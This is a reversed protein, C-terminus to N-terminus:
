RRWFFLYPSTGQSNGAINHFFTYGTMFLATGGFVFRNIPERDKFLMGLYVGEFIYFYWSVRDLFPFIYGLSSLSLGLVYSVCIMKFPVYLDASFSKARRTKTQYVFILTLFFFLIKLPIMFGINLRVLSFYKFYRSLSPLVLALAFPAAFIAFSISLKENRELENWRLLEFIMFTAGVVASRHFLVALFLGAFFIYSKGRDIYRTFFFLIAVACFQRIGNLSMFFFGMYYFTVARRLSSIERFDWMRIVVCTNTIAAMVTLFVTGNDSLKSLGYCIYKFSTELGYAYLFEGMSILYFKNAYNQTDLGVSYGRFGAVLTFLAACAWMWFVNRRREAKGVFIWGLAATGLYVAYTQLM